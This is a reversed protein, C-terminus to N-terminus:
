QIRYATLQEQPPRTVSLQCFRECPDATLPQMESLAWAAGFALRKGPDDMRDAGMLATVLGSGGGRRPRQKFKLSPTSLDYKAKGLKSSHPGM